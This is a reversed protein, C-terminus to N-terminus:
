RRGHMQAASIVTARGGAASDGDGSKLLRTGDAMVRECIDGVTRWAVRM